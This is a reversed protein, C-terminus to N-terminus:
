KLLIKRVKFLLLSQKNSSLSVIFQNIKFIFIVKKNIFIISFKIKM